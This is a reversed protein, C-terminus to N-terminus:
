RWIQIFKFHQDFRWKGGIFPSFHRQPLTQSWIITIHKLSDWLLSFRINQLLCYPHFKSLTHLIALTFNTQKLLLLLASLLKEMNVHHSETPKQTVLKLMKVQFQVNLKLAWQLPFGELTQAFQLCSLPLLIVGMQWVGKIIQMSETGVICYGTETVTAYVFFRLSKEWFECLICFLLGARLIKSPAVPWNWQWLKGM